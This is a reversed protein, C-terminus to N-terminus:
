RAENGAPRSALHEVALDEVGIRHRARREDLAARAKV